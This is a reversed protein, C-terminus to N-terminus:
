CELMETSRDINIMFNDMVLIHDLRELGFPSHKYVGEFLDRRM